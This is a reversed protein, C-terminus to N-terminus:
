MSDSSHQAATVVTSSDDHRVFIQLGPRSTEVRPLHQPCDGARGHDVKQDDEQGGDGQEDHARERGPSCARAWRAPNLPIRGGWSSPGGRSPTLRLYGGWVLGALAMACTSPEPVPPVGTTLKDPLFVLTHARAYTLSPNDDRFMLEYSVRISSDRVYDATAPCALSVAMPFDHSNALTSAFNVSTFIIALVVACCARTTHRPASM